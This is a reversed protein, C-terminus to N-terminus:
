TLARFSLHVRYLESNGKPFSYAETCLSYKQYYKDYNLYAKIYGIDRLSRQTMKLTVLQPM